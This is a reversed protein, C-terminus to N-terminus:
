VELPEGPIGRSDVTVPLCFAVAVVEVLVWSTVAITPSDGDVCEVLAVTDTVVEVRGRGVLVRGQLPYASNQSRFNELTEITTACLLGNTLGFLAALM